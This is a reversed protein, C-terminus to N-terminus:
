SWPRIEREVLVVGVFRQTEALVQEEGRVRGPAVQPLELVLRRPGHVQARGLRAADVRVHALM